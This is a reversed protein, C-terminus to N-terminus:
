VNELNNPGVAGGVAGGEGDGGFFLWYRQAIRIKLM